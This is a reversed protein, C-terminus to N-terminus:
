GPDQARDSCSSGYGGQGGRDAVRRRQAAPVPENAACLERPGQGPHHRAIPVGTGPRHGGMRRRARRAMRRLGALLLVTPAAVVFLLPVVTWHAWPTQRRAVLPMTLAALWVVLAATSLIRHWRIKVKSVDVEPRDHAPARRLLADLRVERPPHTATAYILASLWGKQPVPNVAHIKALASAMVRYGVAEAARRDCDLEVSRIVIRRLGVFVAFGFVVPAAPGMFGALIVAACSVPGILTYMWLSRNAVHAMEHAVIGDREGPALRHLVGDTIVLSPAPLGGAWAQAEMTESTSLLLRVRPVGIGLRAALDEVRGLFGVDEVLDLQKKTYRLRVPPVLSLSVLVISVATAIWVLTQGSRLMGLFRADLAWVAYPAVALTATALSVWLWRWISGGGERRQRWATTLYVVLVVAWIGALSEIPPLSWYFLQPFRRGSVDDYDPQYAEVNALLYEGLRRDAEASRADGLKEYAEARVLYARYNAPDIRLAANCDEIAQSPAGLQLRLAARNVLLSGRGRSGEPASELRETLHQELRRWNDIYAATSAAPPAAAGDGAADDASLLLCALLLATM